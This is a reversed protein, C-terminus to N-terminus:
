FENKFNIKLFGGMSLENIEQSSFNAILMRAITVVNSPCAFGLVHGLPARGILGRHAARGPWM